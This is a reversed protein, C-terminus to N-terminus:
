RPSWVIHPECWRRQDDEHENEMTGWIRGFDLASVKAVKPGNPQKKEPHGKTDGNDFARNITPNAAPKDGRYVEKKQAIFFVKGWIYFVYFDIFYIM